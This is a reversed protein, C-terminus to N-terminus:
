GCMFEPSDWHEINARTNIHRHMTRAQRIKGGDQHRRHIYDSSKKAKWFRILDKFMTIVWRLAAMSVMKGTSAETGRFDGSDYRKVM